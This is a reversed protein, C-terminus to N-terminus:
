GTCHPHSPQGNLAQRATRNMVKFVGEQVCEICQQGRVLLWMCQVQRRTCVVDYVTSTRAKVCEICQEGRICM